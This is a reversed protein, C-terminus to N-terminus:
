VLRSYGSSFPALNLLLLSNFYFFFNLLGSSCMGGFLCFDKVTMFYFM